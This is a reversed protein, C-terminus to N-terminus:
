AKAKMADTTEKLTKGNVYPVYQAVMVGAVGLAAVRAAGAPAFKWIAFLVAAGILKTSNM